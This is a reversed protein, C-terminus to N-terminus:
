HQDSTGKIEKGKIFPLVIHNIGRKPSRFGFMKKEKNGSCAPRRKNLYKIRWSLNLKERTSKLNFFRSCECVKTIKM